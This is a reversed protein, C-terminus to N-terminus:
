ELTPICVYSFASDQLIACGYPIREQGSQAAKGVVQRGCGGPRAPPRDQFANLM